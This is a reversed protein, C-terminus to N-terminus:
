RSTALSNMLSCRLTCCSLSTDRLMLFSHFDEGRLEFFLGRLDLLDAGLKFYVLRRRSRDCIIPLVASVSLGYKV